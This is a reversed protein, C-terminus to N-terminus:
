GVPDLLCASLYLRLYSASLHLSIWTNALTFFFLSFILPLLRRHSSRELVSSCMESKQNAVLTWVELVLCVKGRMFLFVDLGVDVLFIGGRGM